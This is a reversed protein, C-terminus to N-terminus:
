SPAGPNCEDIADATLRASSQSMYAENRSEALESLISYFRGFLAILPSRAALVLEEDCLLEDFASNWLGDFLQVGASLMTVSSPTAQDAAPPPTQMTPLPPLPEPPPANVPTLQEQPVALFHQLIRILIDQLESKCPLVTPDKPEFTSIEHLLDLARCFDAVM